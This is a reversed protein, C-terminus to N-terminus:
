VAVKLKALEERLSLLSSELVVNGIVIVAPSSLEGEKVKELINQATGIAIKQTAWTAEQIVAIPEALSRTLAFMEAIRALHTMGMLIVVTASSKAAHIIDNSLEGSSLTGTVVWFSENVGRKTLPIGAAGAAALSSSIGPIVEVHIGHRQVYELEEHGRGFVYPDGGKLRVVKEFRSAYFVLLRNIEEQPFEKKGKRKGVYVLRCGPKSEQLLREDVLADYLIVDARTIAKMGKLTMLEPDGPGAGVIYLTTEAQKM